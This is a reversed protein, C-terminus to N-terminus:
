TQLDVKEWNDKKYKFIKYGYPADTPLRHTTPRGQNATKSPNCCPRLNATCM